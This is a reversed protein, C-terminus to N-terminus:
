NRRVITLDGEYIDDLGNGTVKVIYYYTGDALGEARWDGTYSEKEFVLVGWRNFVRVHANIGSNLVDSQGIFTENFSDGDPTMINPIILSCSQLNITVFCTDEESCGTEAINQQAVVEYLGNLEPNYISYEPDIDVVSDNEVFTWTWLLPQLLGTGEVLALFPNLEDIADACPQYSADELSVKAALSFQTQESENCFVDSVTVTYIGYTDATYSDDDINLNNGNRSWSYTLSGNLQDAVELTMPFSASCNIYDATDRINESYSVIFSISDQEGCYDSVVIYHVGADDSIYVATATTSEGDWNYSFPSLGNQISVSATGTSDCIFVDDASIQPSAYDFLNVTSSASITDGQLDVYYASVVLTESVENLNDPFVSVTFLQEEGVFIVSDPLESYDDGMDASGEYTLWMIITDADCSPPTLRLEGDICGEYLTQAIGPPPNIPNLALAPTACEFSEPKFVVISKLGSDSGDAIALKMHYTAGCQLDSLVVLSDTYGTCSVDPDVINGPNDNYFQDNLVNNLSSITIPLEPDSGPVIALNAAGDPFGAPAAYPGSIGPGSILFAFVDNYQSNVYTLYEDSGFAYQFTLTPCSAVFDFELIAVDFVGTVIFDQGILPPVSNAITLLDPETNVPALPDALFTNPTFNGVHSTSLIIGNAFPFDTGADQYTGLQIADGTFSINSVQLSPGVLAAVAEEPTVTTVTLQSFGNTALLLLLFALSKNRM